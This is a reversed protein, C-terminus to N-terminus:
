EPCRTQNRKRRTSLHNLEGPASEVGIFEADFAPGHRGAPEGNPCRQSVAQTRSGLAKRLEGRGEDGCRALADVTHEENRSEMDIREATIGPPRRRRRGAPLREVESKKKEAM